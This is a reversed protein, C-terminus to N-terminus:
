EFFFMNRGVEELGGLPILRLADGQPQATHPRAPAREEGPRVFARRGGSHQPGFKRAAGDFRPSHGSGRGPRAGQSHGHSPGQSHGSGFNKSALNPSSALKAAAEDTTYFSTNKIPRIM